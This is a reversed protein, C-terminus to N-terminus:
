DPKKVHTISVIGEQKILQSGQCKSRYKVTWKYDGPKQDKGKYQGTWRDRLNESSYIVKRKKNYIKLEFDVVDDLSFDFVKNFGDNAPSFSVLAKFYPIRYIYNIYITDTSYCNKDYVKVWYTGSRSVETTRNTDGNSWLYRVNVKRADLLIKKGCVTSDKGLNVKLYNCETNNIDSKTELPLNYVITFPLGYTSKGLSLDLANAGFNCDFGKKNPENIVDIFRSTKAIYLKGDPGKKIAGYFNEIKNQFITFSSSEINEISLDYQALAVKGKLFSVYLKKDDPSFCLGYPNGQTNIIKSQKVSGTKRDFDFLQIRGTSNYTYTAAIQDGKNASVIFGIAENNSKDLSQNISGAISIFPESIGNETIQYSYFSNANWQQVVLWYDIGNSHQITTMRETVPSLLKINKEIISGLGTAKNMDLVSYNLGEPKAKETVTFLLYKNQHKPLPLIVVSQAASNHGLLNDGNHLTKHEKNWVKIGDTYFLLNGDPDNITACGENTFLAGNNLVVTGNETFRMGAGNGFYWISNEKQSYCESTLSFITLLLAFSYSFIKM